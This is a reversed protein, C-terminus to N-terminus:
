DQNIRWGGDEMAVRLLLHWKGESEFELGNDDTIRFDVQDLPKAFAPKLELLNKQWFDFHKQIYAPGQARRAETLQTGWERVDGDEAIRFLNRAFEDPDAINKQVRVTVCGAIAALLIVLGAGLTKRAYLM